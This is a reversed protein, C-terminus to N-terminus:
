NIGTKINSVTSKRVTTEEGKEKQVKVMFNKYREELEVNQFAFKTDYEPEGVNDALANFRDHLEWM